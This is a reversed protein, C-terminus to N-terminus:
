SQCGVPFCGCRKTLRLWPEGCAGKERAKTEREARRQKPVFPEVKIGRPAHGSSDSDSGLVRAPPKTDSSRPMSPIRAFSGFAARSDLMCGGTRSILRIWLETTYPRPTNLDLALDRRDRTRSWPRVPPLHSVQCYLESTV